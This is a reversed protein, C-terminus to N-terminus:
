STPTPVTADSVFTINSSPPWVAALEPGRPQPGLRPEPLTLPPGYWMLHVPASPSETPFRSLWIWLPAMAPVGLTLIALASLTLLVTGAPPVNTQFMVTVTLPAVVVAAAVTLSVSGVPKVTLPVIVSVALPPPVSVLM